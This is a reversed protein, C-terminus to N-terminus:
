EPFIQKEFFIILGLVKISYSYCSYSPGYGLITIAGGRGVAM